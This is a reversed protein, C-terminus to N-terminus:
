ERGEEGGSQTQSLCWSLCWSWRWPWWWWWPWCLQQLYFASTQKWSCWLHLLPKGAEHPSCVGRPHPIGVPVRAEAGGGQAKRQAWLHRALRPPRAPGRNVPQGKAKQPRGQPEQERREPRQKQFSPPRNAKDQDQGREQRIELHEFSFSCTPSLWGLSM